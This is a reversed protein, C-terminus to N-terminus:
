DRFCGHGHDQGSGAGPRPLDAMATRLRLRAALWCRRVRPARQSGDEPRFAGSSVVGAGGWSAMPMLCAIRKSHICFAALRSSAPSSALVMRWSSCSNRASLFPLPESPSRLSWVRVKTTLLRIFIQTEGSGSNIGNRSAESAKRRSFGDMRDLEPAVERGM